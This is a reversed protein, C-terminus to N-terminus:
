YCAAERAGPRTLRHWTRVYGIVERVAAPTMDRDAAIRAASRGILFHEVGIQRYDPGLPCRDDLLRTVIPDGVRGWVRRLRRSVTGAQLKMLEAIKRHSAGAGNALEILLRDDKDLLDICRRLHEHGLPNPRTILQGSELRLPNIVNM